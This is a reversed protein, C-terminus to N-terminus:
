GAQATDGASKEVVSSMVAEAMAMDTFIGSLSWIENQQKGQLELMQTTRDMLQALKESLELSGKHSNEEQRQLQQELTEIKLGLGEVATPKDASSSIPVDSLRDLFLNLSNNICSASSQLKTDLEQLGRWHAELCVDERKGNTSSVAPEHTSQKNPMGLGIKMLLSQLKENSDLVQATRYILRDCKDNIHSASREINEGVQRLISKADDLPQQQQQPLQQTADALKQLQGQLEHATTGVQMIALKLDWISRASAPGSLHKLATVLDDIPVEDSKCAIKLKGILDRFDQMEMDIDLARLRTILRLEPNELAREIETSSLSSSNDDDCAELLNRVHSALEAKEKEVVAMKTDEDERQSGVLEESIIGTILSVMTFATITIYAMAFSFVVLGHIQESVVLSIEDWQAL